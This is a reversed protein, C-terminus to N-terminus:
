NKLDIERKLMIKHKNNKRDFIFLNSNVLNSKILSKILVWLKSVNPKKSVLSMKITM